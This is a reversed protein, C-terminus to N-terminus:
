LSQRITCTAHYTNTEMNQELFLRHEAAESTSTPIGPETCVGDNIFIFTRSQSVLGIIFTIVFACIVFM